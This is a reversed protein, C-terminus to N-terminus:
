FSSLDTIEYRWYVGNPFVDVENYHEPVNYVVVAEERVFSRLAFALSHPKTGCCLYYVNEQGFREVAAASLVKWAEIADGARARVIQEPPILWREILERNAEGTLTEYEARFGPEPFLLSVRDPDERTVVRLVKGGEFGVSVLFFKRLHPDIRGGLYPVSVTTWRGLTFPFSEVVSLDAKKEPYRGEAYGITARKIFGSKICFALVGLAYFRPVTALDVYLHLPRRHGAIVRLLEGQLRQWLSETDISSGTIIRTEGSHRGLYDVLLPDHMDRLGERDRADFLLLLSSSCSFKAAGAICVCRRDWSSAFLGIDFDGAIWDSVDEVRYAAGSLFRDVFTTMKM